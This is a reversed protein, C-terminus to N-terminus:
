RDLAGPVHVRGPYPGPIGQAFDFAADPQEMGPLLFPRADTAMVVTPAQICDPEGEGPTVEVEVRYVKM